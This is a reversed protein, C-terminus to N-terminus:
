LKRMFILDMTGSQSIGIEYTNNDTYKFKFINMNGSKRSFHPELEGIIYQFIDKKHDSIPMNSIELLGFDKSIVLQIGIESHDSSTSFFPAGNEKFGTHSFDYKKMETTWDARSMNFWKIANEVCIGPYHNYEFRQVQCQSNAKITLLCILITISLIKRM